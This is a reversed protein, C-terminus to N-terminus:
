FFDKLNRQQTPRWDIGLRDLVTEVLGMYYAKDLKKMSEPSPVDFGDTTKVYELQEGRQPLRGFKKEYLRAIQAGTEASRAGRRAALQSRTAAGKASM